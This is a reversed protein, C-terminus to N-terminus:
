AVIWTKRRRAAASIMAFGAFMLGWTAPEPVATAVANVTLSSLDFSFGEVESRGARLIILSSGSDGLLTYTGTLAGSYTYTYFDFDFADGAALNFNTFYDDLETTVGGFRGSTTFQTISGGGIAAGVYGTLAEDGTNTVRGRIVVTGSSPGAIDTDLLQFNFSAAAQAAAPITIAALGSLVALALKGITM